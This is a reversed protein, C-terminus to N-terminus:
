RLPVTAIDVLISQVIAGSGDRNLSAAVVLGRDFEVPPIWPDDIGSDAPLWFTLTPVTQGLSVSDAQGEDFLQLYADALGLENAAHIYTVKCPGNRAMMPANALAGNRYPLRVGRETKQELEALREVTMTLTEVAAALASIHMTTEDM